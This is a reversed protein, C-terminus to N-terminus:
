GHGNRESAFGRFGRSGREVRGEEGGREIGRKERRSRAGKRGHAASDDKIDPRRTYRSRQAGREKTGRTALCSSPSSSLSLFPLPFSPRTTLGRSRKWLLTEVITTTKVSARKESSVLEMSADRRTLVSSDQHNRVLNSHIEFLIRTSHDLTNNIPQVVTFLTNPFDHSTSIYLTIRKCISELVANWYQSLSVKRHVSSWSFLFRITSLAVM